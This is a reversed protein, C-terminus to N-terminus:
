RPGAAGGSRTAARSPAQVCANGFSDYTGGRADSRAPVPAAGRLQIELPASDAIAARLPSRRSRAWARSGRMRLVLDSADNKRCVSVGLTGPLHVLRIKEPYLLGYFSTGNITMDGLYGQMTRIRDLPDIGNPLVGRTTAGAISIPEPMIFNGDCGPMEMGPGGEFRAPIWLDGRSSLTAAVRAVRGEGLLLDGVDRAPPLGVLDRADIRAVLRDGVHVIVEVPGALDRGIEAAADPFTLSLVSPGVAIAHRRALAVPEGFLSQYTVDVANGDPELSFGGSAAVQAANLFIRLEHGPHIFPSQTAGLRSPNLPVPPSPCDHWKFALAADGALLAALSLALAGARRLAPEHCRRRDGDLAGGSPRRRHTCPSANKM